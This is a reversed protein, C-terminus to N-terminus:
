IPIVEDVSLEVIEMTNDSSLRDRESHGLKVVFCGIWMERSQVGGNGTLHKVVLNQKYDTALGINGTQTNVVANIWNLAWQTGFTALKLKELKANGVKLMGGTKITHTGAGHESTQVELDPESMKQFEFQDIGNIEIAYQFSKVPTASNLPM